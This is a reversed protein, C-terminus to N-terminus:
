EKSGHGQREKRAIAALRVKGIARCRPDDSHLLCFLKLKLKDLESLQKAKWKSVYIITAVGLVGGLIGYLGVVGVRGTMTGMTGKM